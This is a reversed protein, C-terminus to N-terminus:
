VTNYYSIISSYLICNNSYTLCVARNSSATHQKHTAELPTTSIFVTLTQLNQSIVDFVWDYWATNSNALAQGLAKMWGQRTTNVKFNKLRIVDYKFTNSCLAQCGVQEGVTGTQKRQKTISRHVDPWCQQRQIFSM